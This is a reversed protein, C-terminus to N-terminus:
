PFADAPVTGFRELCVPPCDEGNPAIIGTEPDVSLPVNTQPVRVTEQDEEYITISISYRAAPPAELSIGTAGCDYAYLGEDPPAAESVNCPYLIGDGDLEFWYPGSVSTAFALDIRDSCGIETCARPGAACGAHGLLTACLLALAPRVRDM